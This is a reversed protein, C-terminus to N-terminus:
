SYPTRRAARNIAQTAIRTASLVRDKDAEIYRSLDVTEKWRRFNVVDGFLRVSTELPIEEIRAKKETERAKAAYYFSKITEIAARGRLRYVTARTAIRRLRDDLDRSIRTLDEGESRNIKDLLDDFQTRIADLEDFLHDEGLLYKSHFQLMRVFPAIVVLRLQRYNIALNEERAHFSYSSFYYSGFDSVNV